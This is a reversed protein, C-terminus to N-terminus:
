GMAGPDIASPGRRGSPIGRQSAARLVGFVPPIRGQGPQHRCASREPDREGCREHERGAGAERLVWRERPPIGNRPLQLRGGPPTVAHQDADRERAASGARGGERVTNELPQAVGPDRDAPLRSMQEVLHVEDPLGAITAYAMAKPIVIASATLGAVRDFQIWAREYHRIWEPVPM